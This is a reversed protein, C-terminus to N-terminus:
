GGTVDITNNIHNATPITTNNTAGTHCQSCDTVNHKVHSGTAPGTTAISVSHCATCGTAAVGWVPTTVTGTGYVNAHCTATSCTGTYSGQAHKATVPYGGTVNITGNNHNATPITTSNTAGAHCQSCDTVNHKAHSGTAPGSTAITVSHCATCGTASVGWVPTTVSGTGYVNAHCTATSCTGTYTGAAHKAVTSPYGGTVEINGNIHGTTPMTTASTGAAHCQTCDTVNHKVHSGTAPGTSAIAVSHCATCGTAAVGWVPTTVTGTGYVNAHCSATSCTGTYSGAAHKATVPYGDTVTITGDLHGTTPKTTATTGAAHCDVCSTDNHKVHSGTAPGTSGIAVSHCAACGAATGWAPTTVSGTGYVNAHCSATSCTKGAALYGIGTSSDVDISQNTHSGKITTGTATTPFHCSVCDAAGTVHKAHSNGTTYVPEGAISSAGGHCGKCDLNNVTANWLVPTAAAGGKGDTHCYSTCTQTGSDYTGARTGGYNVTGNQHNAPNSFVTDSSVTPAHCDACGYNSGLLTANNIHATHKNTAIPNSSAANSGHCATCGTAKFGLSHPHCGTCDTNPHSTDGSQPANASNYQHYKTQTHCSECIRVSTAHGVSDNGFATMNKFTVTKTVNPGITSPISEVIRKVNNTTKNHCTACTFEGYTGGPMGWNGGSKTSGLNQANHLLPSAALAMGSWLCAVLVALGGMMRSSKKGMVIEKKSGYGQM